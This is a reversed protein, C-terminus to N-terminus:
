RGILISPNALVNARIGLPTLGLRGKSLAERCAMSAAAEGGGGRRDRNTSILLHEDFWFFHCFSIICGISAM